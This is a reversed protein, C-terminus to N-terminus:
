RKNLENLFLIIFIFVIQSFLIKFLIHQQEISPRHCRFCCIKFSKEFQIERCVPCREIGRNVENWRALCISCIDFHCCGYSLPPCIQNEFCILCDKHKTSM